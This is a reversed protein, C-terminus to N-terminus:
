MFKYFLQLQNAGLYKQFYACFESLRAQDWDESFIIEVVDSYRGDQWMETLEIFGTM